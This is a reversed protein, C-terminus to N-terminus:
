NSRRDIVAPFFAVWQDGRAKSQRQFNELRGSGNDSRCFRNEEWLSNSLWASATIVFILAGLPQLARAYITLGTTNLWSNTSTGLVLLGHGSDCGRGCGLQRQRFTDAIAGYVVAPALIAYTASETSPGFLIM